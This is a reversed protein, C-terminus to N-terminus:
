YNALQLTLCAEVIQNFGLNKFLRCSLFKLTCSRRRPCFSLCHDDSFHLLKLYGRLPFRIQKPRCNGRASLGAPRCTYRYRCRNKCSYGKACTCLEKNCFSKMSIFSLSLRVIFKTLGIPLVTCLIM